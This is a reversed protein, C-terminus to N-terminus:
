EQVLIVTSLLPLGVSSTWGSAETTVTGLDEWRSSDYSGVYARLTVGAPTGAPAEFTMPLGGPDAAYFNFPGISWQAVVTGGIEDTPVWQTPDVRAALLETPLEEFPREELDGDGITLRLGPAVDLPAASGPIRTSLADQVAVDVSRTEGSAFVLPVFATVQAPGGVVEFSFWDVAVDDFAYSGDAGTVGNRCVPGRCFRLQVGDIPSGAADTVVGQLAASTDETPTRSDTDTDADTDADTDTDTDADADSLSTDTPKTPEASCGGLSLGIWWVFSTRSM